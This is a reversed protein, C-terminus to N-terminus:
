EQTTRAENRLKRVWCCGCVCRDRGCTGAVDHTELPTLAGEVLELMRVYGPESTSSWGNPALQGWGGAAVALPAKLIRSEGPLGANVLAAFPQQALGAGFLERVHARLAQEGEPSPKRREPRNFSYDGYYQANLDLWDIVRQFSEPDLRVHQTHDTKLFAALRGAHAFYDKPKSTWTERNRKAIKVMGEREALALYATNYSHKPTGLLEIGAQTAELGHCRICYRDLVPQVTRAFSFGGSYAPGAPPQPDRIPVSLQRPAPPPSATRSEHCGVCSLYEGPQLYVASRMTMVAMGDRDLIQFQLPEGAPARFAVSGDDNVPVTGVIGKVIENNALDLAPKRCTPQGFIRNIRLRVISGAPIPETSEYVNQVHFTGTQPGQWGAVVSPIVPPVPRPQLPIPAFCSVAPDRYILERGGLSDVLVIAYANFRQVQGQHALPDPSFAALVLEESLPWPTCFSSKPWGETEPFRVEPTLREVPPSDDLGKGQDVTIISGATYAHHGMATAIVKDSGPIARAEAIMCPNRTYNGYFHATAAGDPRTTWLSQFIVDHRNIYDWRTYILRGDHLLSPDWENAEGFSIQRIGSGDAEARYLLYSPTYRSGHCRGFNQSRTSVFAFGGDPLCCPDWDEVLVTRRGGATALPDAATGTLQRLAGDALTLEYLWYRRLHRQAVTHDCFGFLVRTADFSLDPHLVSGRPLKDLLLVTERPNEKWSELVVLGPGAQSHRGLYQDCQHSYLPPGRKNILLRDFDLLPHSLIIRRRLRRIGHFSNEGANGDQAAFQNEFAALEAALGPRAASREVFALTKRAFLIAEAALGRYYLGRVREVQPWAAAAVALERAAAEDEPRCADAYRGALEALAGPQWDKRWIGAHREMERELEWRPEPFDAEAQRDLRKRNQEARDRPDYYSCYDLWFRVPDKADRWQPRTGIVLEVYAYQGALSLAIESDRELRFGHEFRREGLTFAHWRPDKEHIYFRGGFREPKLKGFPVTEGKLGVLQPDGFCAIGRGGAGIYLKQVGRVNLKVARPGDAPRLEAEFREFGEPKSAATRAAEEAERRLLTERSAWTTEQWTPKRVYWEPM